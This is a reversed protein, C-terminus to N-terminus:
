TKSPTTDLQTKNEAPDELTFIVVDEETRSKQFKSFSFSYVECIKHYGEEFWLANLLLMHARGIVMLFTHCGDLNLSDISLSDLFLRPLHLFVKRKLQMINM